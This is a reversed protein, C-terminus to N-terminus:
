VSRGAKTLRRLRTLGAHAEGTFCILESGALTANCIGEKPPGDEEIPAPRNHGEWGEDAM